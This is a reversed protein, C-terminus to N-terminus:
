CSLWNSLKQNYLSVAKDQREQVLERNNCISHLIKILDESNNIHLFGLSTYDQMFSRRKTLNISIGIKGIRWADLLVQSYESICITCWKLDDHLYSTSIELNKLKCNAVFNHLRNISNIGEHQSHNMTPHPRIRFLAQPFQSAIDAILLVLSDTDSRNILSTWDGAHNLAVLIYLEEFSSSDQFFESEIFGPPKITRKGHKIFWSDDFMTRPVFVKDGYGHLYSFPYNSPHFGDIFILTSPDNLILQNPYDHITACLFVKNRGSLKKAHNQLFFELNDTKSLNRLDSLNVELTNIVTLSAIRIRKLSSVFAYTAGEYDILNVKVKDYLLIKPLLYALKVLRFKLAYYLNKVIIKQFNNEPIKIALSSWYSSNIGLGSSYYIFNFKYTKLIKEYVMRNKARLSLFQFSEVRQFGLNSGQSFVLFEAEEDCKCMDEETLLDSFTVFQSELFFQRISEEEHPFTKHTTLFFAKYINVKNQLSRIQNICINQNIVLLADYIKM